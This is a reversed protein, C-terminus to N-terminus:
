PTTESVLMSPSNLAVNLAKEEVEPLDVVVVQTETEGIAQLVKLRQHGGVVNGTQSNWVIPEVLGFREVSARLGSLADPSISRPNYPAPSLDSVQKTLISLAPTKM